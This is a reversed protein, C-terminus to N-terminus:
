EFITTCAEANLVFMIEPISEDTNSNEKIREAIERLKEVSVHQGKRTLNGIFEFLDNYADNDGCTFWDYKICVHRVNTKSIYRFEKM